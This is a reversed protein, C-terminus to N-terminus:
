GQGLGIRQRVTIGTRDSIAALFFGGGPAHSLLRKDECFHEPKRGSSFKVIHLPSKALPLHKCLVCRLQNPVNFTHLSRKSATVIPVLWM